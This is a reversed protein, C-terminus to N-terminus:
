IGHITKGYAKEIEGSSMEPDTADLRVVEAGIGVRSCGAVVYDVQHAQDYGLAITDPSIKKVTNFMDLEDGIVCTDVMSLSRVLDQRQVQTHLPTRRKMKVATADTAVVVILVDGLARAQRLTHIHGPHIIDFVGGSLVVRITRRGRATLATRSSEVLGDVVLKDIAGVSACPEEGLLGGVYVACLAEIRPSRM